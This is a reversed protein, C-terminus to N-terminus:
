DKEQFFRHYGIDLKLQFTKAKTSKKPASAGADIWISIHEFSVHESQIL